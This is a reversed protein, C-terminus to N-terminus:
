MARLFERWDGAIADLDRSLAGLAADRDEFDLYEVQWASGGLARVATRESLKGVIENVRRTDVGPQVITIRLEWASAM